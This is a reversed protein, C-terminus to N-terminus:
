LIQFKLMNIFFGFFILHIYLFLLALIHHFTYFYKNKDYNTIWLNTTDLIYYSESLLKLQYSSYNNYILYLGTLTHITGIHYAILKNSHKTFHNFLNYLTIFYVYYYM